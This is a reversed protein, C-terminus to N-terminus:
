RIAQKPKRSTGLPTGLVNGNRAPKPARAPTKAKPTIALVVAPAFGHKATKGTRGTSSSARGGRTTSKMAMM